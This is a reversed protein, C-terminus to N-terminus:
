VCVVVFHFVLLACLDNGSIKTRAKERAVYLGGTTWQRAKDIGATRRRGRQRGHLM